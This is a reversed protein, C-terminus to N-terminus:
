RPPLNIFPLSPSPFLSIPAKGFPGREGGFILSRFGKSLERRQPSPIHFFSSSSLYLALYYRHFPRPIPPGIGNMATTM